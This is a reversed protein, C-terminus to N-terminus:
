PKELLWTHIHSSSWLPPQADFLQHKQVITKSFVRSLGKSQLSIWGTLGWSFWDQINVPLVSASAWAWAGLSKGGSKFFKSMSITWPSASDSAVSRSLQVIEKRFFQSISCKQWPKICLDLSRKEGCLSLKEANLHGVKQVGGQSKLLVWHISEKGELLFLFM